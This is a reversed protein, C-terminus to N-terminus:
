VEDSSLIIEAVIRKRSSLVKIALINNEEVDKKVIEEFNEDLLYDKLNSFENFFIGGATFNADYKTEKNM